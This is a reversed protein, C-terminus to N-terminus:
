GCPACQLRSALRGAGSGPPQYCAGRQALCRPRRWVARAADRKADAGASVAARLPARPGTVSLALAASLKDDADASVAARLPSSPRTVTRVLEAGRKPGADGVSGIAAARLLALPEIVVASRVRAGRLARHAGKETVRPVVPEVVAAASPLLVAPAQGAAVLPLSRLVRQEVRLWHKRCRM